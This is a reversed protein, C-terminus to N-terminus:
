SDLVRPDSMDYGRSQLLVAAHARRLIVEDYQRLLEAQRLQEEATLEREGADDELITMDYLQDAPISSRALAWLAADSLQAMALLEAKLLPPLDDEVTVAAPLQRVLVRQVLDDVTRREYAAQKQLRRFLDEPLNVSYVSMLEVEQYIQTCDM